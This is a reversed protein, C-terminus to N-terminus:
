DKFTLLKKENGDHLIVYGYKINVNNFMNFFDKFYKEIKDIKHLSAGVISINICRGYYVNFFINYYNEFYKYISEKLSKIDDENDLSFNFIGDVLM